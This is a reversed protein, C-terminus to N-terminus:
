KSRLNKDGNPLNQTLSSLFIFICHSTHSFAGAVSMHQASSAARHALHSM